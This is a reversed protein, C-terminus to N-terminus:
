TLPVKRLELHFNFECCVIMHYKMCHINLVSIIMHYKMCHINLVTHVITMSNMCVHKVSPVCVSGVTAYLPPCM